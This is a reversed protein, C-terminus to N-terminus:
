AQSGVTDEVYYEIDCELSGAVPTAAAAHITGIVLQKSGSTNKYLGGATAITNDSTVGVAHGVTIVAAKFLQPTGTVGLDLSLLPTANSDLQSDAKLWANVVVANNPLYGFDIVDNLAFTAPLAVTAHMHSSTKYVGHGTGSPTSAKYIDSQWTAM